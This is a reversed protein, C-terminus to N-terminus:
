NLKLNYKAKRYIPYLCWYVSYMCKLIINNCYKYHAKKEEMFRAYLSGWDKKNSIGAQGMGAIILSMVKSNVDKNYIRLNFEYDMAINFSCDYLGYKEFLDKSIVQGQHGSGIKFYTSLGFGKNPKVKQENESHVALVNFFYIDFKEHILVSIRELTDENLLYDDSNIFLLYDGTAMSIGKNMGDAIGYDPESVWSSIHKEYKIIIDRTSDNSGGDIIIHEKNKYTQNAISLINKEIYKESNLSVTIISFKIDSM